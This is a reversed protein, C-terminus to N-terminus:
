LAVFNPADRTIRAQQQDTGYIANVARMWQIAHLARM